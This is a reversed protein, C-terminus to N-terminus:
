SSYPNDTSLETHTMQHLSFSKNFHSNFQTSKTFALGAVAVVSLITLVVVVQRAERTSKHVLADGLIAEDDKRLWVAVAIGNIYEKEPFLAAEAGIEVNM